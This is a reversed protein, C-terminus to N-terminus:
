IAKASAEHTSRIHGGHLADAVLFLDRASRKRCSEAAVRGGAAAMFLTLSSFPINEASRRPLPLAGLDPLSFFRSDPGLGLEHEEMAGNEMSQTFVAQVARHAESNRDTKDLVSRANDPLASELGASEHAFFQRQLEEAEEKGGALILSTDKVV